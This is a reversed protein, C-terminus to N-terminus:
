AAAADLNADPPAGRTVPDGAALVMAAARRAIPRRNFSAPM